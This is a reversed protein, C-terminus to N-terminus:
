GEQQSLLRNGVIKNREKITRGKRNCYRHRGGGQGVGTMLRESGDFPLCHYALGYRMVSDELFQALSSHTHDVLGFIGPELSNDGELEKRGRDSIVSRNM